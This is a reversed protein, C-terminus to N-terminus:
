KIKFMSRILSKTEGDGVELPSDGFKPDADANALAVIADRHNKYAAWWLPSRQTKTLLNVNAGCDILTQVNTPNHIAAYHLPTNQYWDDRADVDAGASVLAKIVDTSPNCRAAYHLPTLTAGKVANVNCGNRVFLKVISSSPNHEAASFLLDQKQSSPM